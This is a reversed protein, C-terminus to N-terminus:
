NGTDVSMTLGSVRGRRGKKRMPVPCEKKGDSLISLYETELEEIEDEGLFGKETENVKKNATELFSRLELAWKQGDHEHAFELERGHHANCLAHRCKKYMWYSPWGDHCLVGEYHPLIGMRDMGKKGRRKDAHYLTVSGNSLVHIWYNSGNMNTGTEDAHLCESALLKKEAWDRFGIKELMGDAYSNFNSITGKSIALGMQDNFLDRIRDLPILQFVSMYVSLAKTTDGYQTAKSVEWPFEAVFQQGRENEVVEARHETVVVSMEVDFVQRSEYGASKWNGGPLSERDVEYEVIKDPNDVKALNRGEHGPQGGPRREKGESKKRKRHPDGSPSKNSNKSNRSLRGIMEEAFLLMKDIDSKLESTLTDSGLQSKIKKSLEKVSEKKIVM